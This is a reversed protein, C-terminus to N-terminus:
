SKKQVRAKKPEQAFLCLGLGIIGIMAYIMFYVMDVGGLTNKVIMEYVMIAGIEACIKL